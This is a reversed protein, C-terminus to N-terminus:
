RSYLEEYVNAWMLRLLLEGSRCATKPNQGRPIWIPLVSYQICARLASDLVADPKEVFQTTRFADVVPFDFLLIPRITSDRLRILERRFRFSDQTGLLNKQLESLCGKREAPAVQKGAKVADRIFYDGTRLAVSVTEVEFLHAKWGLHWRLHKPFTLPKQERTDVLVVLKDPLKM